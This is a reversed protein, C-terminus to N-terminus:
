DTLIGNQRLVDLIAAKGGEIGGEVTAGAAGAHGGGGIRSCLFSADYTKGTRLSIKGKGNEVERIMIGMEVGEVSRAFGSISDIDDETIHLEDLWAQPLVCLGVKGGSYFEMSQVLRAELQMRGLSKTDFLQKNLPFIDAGARVLEAAVAFTNDTTNAYKFCGTDTSIAVYLAEAMAKDVCVGLELLLAYVIEGCAAKDPEVLKPVDLSNTAHHDVAFVLRDALAEADLSLLGLSAIDVSIVTASEPLTDTVLGDLQASFRATFQQNRYLSAAKGLSQLGRCLAAASGITDGDPRRHTLLVYNDHEQLFRVAETRTM